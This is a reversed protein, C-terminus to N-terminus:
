AAPPLNLHHRILTLQDQMETLLFGHGAVASQYLTLAQRVTAFERKTEDRDRKAQALMEVQTRQMEVQVRQIQDVAGMLHSLMSVISGMDTGNGEAM